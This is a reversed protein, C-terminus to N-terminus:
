RCELSCDWTVLSLLNISQFCYLMCSQRLLMSACIFNSTEEKSCKLYDGGCYHFKLIVFASSFSECAFDNIVLCISWIM